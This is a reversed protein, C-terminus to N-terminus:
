NQFNNMILNINLQFIERSNRLIVEINFNAFQKGLLTHYDFWYKQRDENSTSNNLFEVRIRTVIVAKTLVVSCM